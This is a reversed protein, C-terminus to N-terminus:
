EARAVGAELMVVVPGKCLRYAKGLISQGYINLYEKSLEPHWTLHGHRPFVKGSSKYEQNMSHVEGRANGRGKNGVNYTCSFLNEM